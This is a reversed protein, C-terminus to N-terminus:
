SAHGQQKCYLLLLEFYDALATEGSLACGILLALFDISEYHGYYGRVVRTQHTFASLAIIALTHRASLSIICSSNYHRLCYLLSFLGSRIRICM